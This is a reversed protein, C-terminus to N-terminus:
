TPENPLFYFGQSPGKLFMVKDTFQQERLAVIDKNQLKLDTIQQKVQPSGFLSM